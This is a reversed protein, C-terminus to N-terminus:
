KKNFHTKKTQIVAFYAQALTGSKERLQSFIM